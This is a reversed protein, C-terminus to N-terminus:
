LTQARQGCPVGRYSSDHLAQDVKTSVAFNEYGDIWHRQGDQHEHLPRIDEKFAESFRRCRLKLKVCYLHHLRDAFMLSQFPTFSPYRGVESICDVPDLKAM